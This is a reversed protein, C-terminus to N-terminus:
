GRRGRIALYVVGVLGIFVFGIILGVFPPIIKTGPPCLTSNTRYCYGGLKIYALM